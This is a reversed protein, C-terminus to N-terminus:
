IANKAAKLLPFRDGTCVGRFDDLTLDIVAVGGLGKSRAYSAKNATTDPDEFGVWLGERDKDENRFSYIGLKKTPDIVKKLLGKAGHNNPNQSLSCIEPYSLLGKEHTLHGEAGAGDAELPPVGSSPNEEDELEWSRGYTPIGLVLKNAPASHNLFWTVMHDVSFAAHRDATAYLPAPYDAVNKSVQKEPTLFDFAHLHIADLYPSIEPLDYYLTYNTRPLVSATVLYGDPRMALKLQKVLATFGAKHEESQEDKSGKAYGFTKKVKHWISHLKSEHNVKQWPFQWALDIGDFGYKQVFARASSVFTGRHNGDRLLALYKETEKDGDAWGGVSILVHLGPYRKKLATVAKYNGKGSDTDLDPDLSRVKYENEDLKAYGYVIHTCSSLAHELDAVLFKGSDQRYYAKNNYFCVVKNPNPTVQATIISPLLLCLFSLYTAKSM